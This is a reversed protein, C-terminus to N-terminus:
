QPRVEHVSDVADVEFMGGAAAVVAEGAVVCSEVGEDRSPSRIAISGEERYFDLVSFGHPFGDGDEARAEVLEGGLRREEDIGLVRFQASRGNLLEPPLM